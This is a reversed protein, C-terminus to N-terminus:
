KGLIGIRVGYDVALDMQDYAEKKTNQQGFTMTGLCVESVKIDSNGLFNMRM